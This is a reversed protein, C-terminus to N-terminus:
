APTALARAEKSTNLKALEADIEADLEEPNKHSPEDLGRIKRIGDIAKSTTETIAKAELTSKTTKATEAMLRLIDRYVELGHEMDQVDDAAEEDKTRLASEFGPRPGGALAAKVTERKAGTLDRSWGDKAARKRIAKEDIGFDAAIARVSKSGGKYLGEIAIWDILKPARSM